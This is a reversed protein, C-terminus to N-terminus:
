SSSSGLYTGQEACCACRLGDLLNKICKIEKVHEHKLATIQQRFTFLSIILSCTCRGVVIKDVALWCCRLM